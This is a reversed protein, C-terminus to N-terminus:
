YLPNNNNLVQPYKQFEFWDGAIQGWRQLEAQTQPASIQDRSVTDGHDGNASSWQFSVIEDTHGQKDNNAHFQEMMDTLKVGNPLQCEGVDGNMQLEWVEQEMLEDILVQHDRKEPPQLGLM